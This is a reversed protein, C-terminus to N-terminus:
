FIVNVRQLVDIDVFATFDRGAFGVKEKGRSYEASTNRSDCRTYSLSCLFSRCKSLEQQVTRCNQM